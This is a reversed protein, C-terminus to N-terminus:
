LQVNRLSSFERRLLGGRELSQIEGSFSLIYAGMKEAIDLLQHKGDAYNLLYMLRQHSEGRQLESMLTPYLGRKGLQPEGYPLQNVYKGELELAMVVDTLVKVTGEMAAFDIFSRDDKSTHYEKYKGYMTRTLCGVPLDFGPSCYQREDSGFPFFDLESFGEGQPAHRLVHSVLRNVYSESRSKKWTFAGRDGCCTAVIGAQLHNRFHEGLISLYYIAGITEPGIFFRYTYKRNPIRRVQDYLFALALPGSLENNAMSPHCIYSSFLIEQDTAGPLVAEGYTMSGPKLTTDIKIKYWGTKPLTEFEDHRMCFGWRENYYSTAYPIADPYDPRTIIHSVLEEYSLEGEFPVSYGMLHLNHAAVDAIKRGDPTLIYAERVNWERPIEWDLAPTGTPVERIELDIVEQLIRLSERVGNGTISRLIPYLRDFYQAIRDKM